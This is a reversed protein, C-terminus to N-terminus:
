KNTKSQQDSLVLGKKFYDCQCKPRWLLDAVSSKMQTFWNGHQCIAAEYWHKHCSVEWKCFQNCSFLSTVTSLHTHISVTSFINKNKTLNPNLMRHRTDACSVEHWPQRSLVCVNWCLMLTNHPFMLWVTPCHECLPSCTVTQQSEAPSTYARRRTRIMLGPAWVYTKAQNHVGLVCKLTNLTHVLWHQNSLETQLLRVENNRTM